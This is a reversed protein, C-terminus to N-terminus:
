QSIETITAVPVEQTKGDAGTVSAYVVGEKNYIKTVTGEAKITETVNKGDEGKIPDGNEDLKNQTYEAKVTKGVLHSADLVNNTANSGTTDTVALVQDLQLMKGGDVILYYEGNTFQVGDVVASSVITTGNAATGDAYMVGKGILAYYQTGVMASSMSQLQELQSFTAMQGIFESNSQPELPDQYQMQAVLLKLFLEQDYEQKPVRNNNAPDYVRGLKSVDTQTTNDSM